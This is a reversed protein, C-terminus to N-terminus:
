FIYFYCMPANNIIQLKVSFFLLFTFNLLTIPKISAYLTVCAKYKFLFSNKLTLNTFSLFFVIIIIIKLQERQKVIIKILNRHNKRIKKNFTKSM